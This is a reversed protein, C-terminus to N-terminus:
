GSYGLDTTGVGEERSEWRETEEGLIFEMFRKGGDLGEGRGREEGRWEGNGLVLL